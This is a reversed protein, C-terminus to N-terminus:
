VDLLGSYGSSHAAQIADAVDAPTIHRKPLKLPVKEWFGTDVAGPRVITVRLKRREERALTKAFVELGAKAAAYAAFKPLVLKEIMAGLFVLHSKDAMLPLFAQTMRFAGTLNADIIREWDAVDLTDVTDLAIDGVAYVCLDVAEHEVAIQHAASQVDNWDNIDADITHDAQTLLSTDRAIEIVTNGLARQSAAVAQGIGGNAGWVVVTQATM